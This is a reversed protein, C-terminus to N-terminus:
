KGKKGGFAMIYQRAAQIAKQKDFGDKVIRAPPLKQGDVISIDIGKGYTIECLVGLITIQQTRPNEENM